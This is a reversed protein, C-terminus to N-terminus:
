FPHVEWAYRGVRALTCAIVVILLCGELASAYVAGYSALLFLPWLVEITGCGGVDPRGLM